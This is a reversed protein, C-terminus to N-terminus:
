KYLLWALATSVPLMVWAFFTFLPLNSPFSPNIRWLLSLLWPYFPPYKTQFPEKPLSLIRYGSGEALSKACVLYVGDDDMAALHSMDRARWALQASPVFSLLLVVSAIWAVPQRAKHGSIM